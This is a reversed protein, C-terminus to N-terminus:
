YCCVIYKFESGNSVTAGASATLNIAVYSTNSNRVTKPSNGGPEWSILLLM